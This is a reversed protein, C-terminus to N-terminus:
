SAETLMFGQASLLKTLIGIINQGTGLESSCLRSLEKGYRTMIPTFSMQARSEHVSTIKMAKGNVLVDKSEGPDLRVFNLTNSDILGLAELSVIEEYDINRDNAGGGDDNLFVVFPKIDMITYSCIKRFSEAEDKSMDSLISLTRKSYSGPNELEGDLVSGWIRRMEDDFQESAGDVWRIFWSHDISSVDVSEGACANSFSLCAGLNESRSFENVLRTCMADTTEDDLRLKVCRRRTKELADFMIDNARAIGRAESAIALGPRARVISDLLRGAGTAAKDAVEAVEKAVHAPGM